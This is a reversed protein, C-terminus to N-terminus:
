KKRGCVNYYNIIYWDEDFKLGGLRFLQSNLISLQSHLPQRQCDALSYHTSKYTRADGVARQLCLSCLSVMAPFAARPTGHRVICKDHVWTPAAKPLGDIGTFDTPASVQMLGDIHVSDGLPAIHADGGVCCLNMNITPASVWM